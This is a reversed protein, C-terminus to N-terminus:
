DASPDDNSPVIPRRYVYVTQTAEQIAGDLTRVQVTLRHEGIAEPLVWRYSPSTSWPQIITDDWLFQYATEPLAPDTSVSVTVAYGPYWASDATLFLDVALASGPSASPIVNAMLQRPAVSFILSVVVLLRPGATTCHRHNLSM